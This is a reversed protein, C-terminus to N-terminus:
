QATWKALGFNTSEQLTLMGTGPIETLISTGYYAKGLTIKSRQDETIGSPADPTGGKLLVGGGASGWYSNFNANNSGVLNVTIPNETSFNSGLYIYAYTTTVLFNIPNNSIEVPGDLVINVIPAYIGAITNNTITTGGTMTICGQNKFSIGTGNNSITGGSITIFTPNVADFSLGKTNEKITGESMTFVTSVGNIQVGCGNTADTYGSIEGGSMTGRVNNALYVGARIVSSGRLAGDSMTFTYGAPAAGTAQIHIDYSNGTSGSIEGGEISISGSITEPYDTSTLVPAAAVGSGKVGTIKSGTKMKLHASKMYIMSCATVQTNTGIHLTTNKGNLTLNNDLILTTGNDLTFLGQNGGSTNSKSTGDWSITRETNYGRLTIEINPKDAPSWYPAIEQDDGLLVVYQSNAAAEDNIWTMADSFDDYTANNVVTEVSGIKQYLLVPGADIEANETYDVGAGLGNAIVARLAITGATNPTIKGTSVAGTSVGTGGADTVTWAITKNAATAPEVQVPSGAGGSLDLEM